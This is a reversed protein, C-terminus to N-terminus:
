HYSRAKIRMLTDIFATNAQAAAEIDEESIDSNLMGVQELLKRGIDEESNCQSFDGPAILSSEVPVLRVILEAYKAPASERVAAIVAAGHETWDKELAEVFATTLRDRLSPEAARSNAKRVM